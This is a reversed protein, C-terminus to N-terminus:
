ASACSSGQATTSVTATLTPCTRRDHDPAQCLSCRRRRRITRLSPLSMAAPSLCEERTHGPKRCIGCPKPASTRRDKAHLKRCRAECYKTRTLNPCGHRACPKRRAERKCEDSCHLSRPRAPSSKCQACLRPTGRPARRAGYDRAFALCRGCRSKSRKCIRRKRCRICFGTRAPRPSTETPTPADTTV